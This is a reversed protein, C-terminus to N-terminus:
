DEDSENGEDNLTLAARDLRGDVLAEHVALGLGLLEHRAPHGPIDSGNVLEAAFQEAGKWTHHPCRTWGRQLISKCRAPGSYVECWEKEGNNRGAM